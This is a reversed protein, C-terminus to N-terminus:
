RAFHKNNKSLLTSNITLSQLPGSSHRQEETVPTKSFSFSLNYKKEENLIFTLFTNNNNNNNNNGVHSNAGLSFGNTYRIKGHHLIRNILTILAAPKDSMNIQVQDCVTMKTM